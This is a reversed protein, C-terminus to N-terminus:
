GRERAQPPLSTPTNAGPIENTAAEPKFLPSKAMDRSQVVIGAIALVAFLIVGMAGSIKLFATLPGSVMLAGIISSAGVLGWDFLVALLGAGVIGFLVFAVIQPWEAQVERALNSLLLFGIIGFVGFGAVVAMARQVVVALTAFALGLGIGCVARVWEESNTLLQSGILLGITFGVLAVFVWFLRRGFFLTAVGMALSIVALSVGVVTTLAGFISGLVGFIQNLSDM